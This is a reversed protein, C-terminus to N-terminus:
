DRHTWTGEMVLREDDDPEARRVFRLTVLGGEVSVRFVGTCGPCGPAESRTVLRGREYRLTGFDGVRVPKRPRAQRLTWDQGRVVLELRLRGEPGLRRSAVAADIGRRRAEALTVVRVYVGDAIVDGPVADVGDSGRTPGPNVPDPGGDGPGLTALLVLCAVVVSAVATARGLVASRRRRRHVRDLSREVAPAVSWANDALGRRLREDVSM